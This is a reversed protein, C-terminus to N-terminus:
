IVFGNSEEQYPALACTCVRIQNFGGSGYSAIEKRERYKEPDQYSHYIDVWRLKLQYNNYRVESWQIYFLYVVIPNLM